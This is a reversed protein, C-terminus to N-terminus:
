KNRGVSRSRSIARFALTLPPLVRERSPLFRCRQLHFLKVMRTKTGCLCWTKAFWDFERPVRRIDSGCEGQAKSMPFLFCHKGPESQIIPSPLDSLISFIEFCPCPTEQFRVQLCLARCLMSVVLRNLSSGSSTLRSSGIWGQVICVDGFGSCLCRKLHYFPATLLHAIAMIHRRQNRISVSGNSNGVPTGSTHIRNVLLHLLKPSRGYM